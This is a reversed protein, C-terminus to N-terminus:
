KSSIQAVVNSMDLVNWHDTFKGNHLKIIDIVNMVVEKNSPPIGMFEGKQTGHFFKRTTVFDGEAVQDQIEVKLDPFAPKLIQNFFYLVGEPGKPMGEPASHNVFDKAVIEDFSKMDGGEIFEKNFRVVTAKNKEEISKQKMMETQDPSGSASFSNTNWTETKIKWAGGSQKQWVVVYKGKDNMSETQNPLKFTINWEGIDFALDGSGYFDTTKFDVALYKFGSALDNKYDGIINKIGKLEPKYGPLSIADKTYLSSITEVDEAVMATSMKKNMEEIAKRVQSWDNANLLFASILLFFFILLSKNILSKM